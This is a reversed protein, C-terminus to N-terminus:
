HTRGPAPPVADGPQDPASSPGPPSTSAAPPRAERRALTVGGGLLALGVLLALITLAEPQALHEAVMAGPELLLVVIALGEVARDGLRAGAVFLGLATLVALIEGALGAQRLVYVPALLATAVGLMMGTRRPRLVGAAAAVFWAIGLVWLLMAVTSTDFGGLLSPAPVTLAVVFGALTVFALIEQLSRRCVLWLALAGGSGLATALIAGARSALGLADVVLLVAFLIWGLGSLFWTVSRIRAAGVSGDGAAAGAGLLVAAVVGVVFLRAASGPAHREVVLVVAALAVAVGVYASVEAAVPRSVIDRLTRAPEVSAM